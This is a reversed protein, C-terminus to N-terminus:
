ARSAVDLPPRVLHYDTALQYAHAVRLIVSECLPGGVIQMGIPLGRSFGCPVSAGCIGAINIPVTYVDSLYMQLPDTVREGLRFAVTPSTPTILADVEDFVREFDRRVLTRVQQAKLYYAEYYGASLAYTGLLIRRKVEAGFGAERTNAFMQWIDEGPCSLGYRVGDYRALNAMAEAPSIIYYTSLAYDTTPLSVEVVSAGLRAFVDLASRVADEVEPQIGAGFYEKPVGLRL